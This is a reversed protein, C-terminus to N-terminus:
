SEETIEKRSLEELKKRKKNQVIQQDYKADELLRAVPDRKILKKEKVFERWANSTHM